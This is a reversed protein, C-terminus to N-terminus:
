KAYITFDSFLAATYSLLKNLMWPLGIVIAALFALLRPVASFSSDQISTVIQLLSIVIGAIFGIALVPASLWFALWLAGRILDTTQQINM